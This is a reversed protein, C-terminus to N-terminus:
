DWFNLNLMSTRELIFICITERSGPRDGQGLFARCPAAERRRSPHGLTWNIKDMHPYCICAPHGWFGLPKCRTLPGHQQLDGPTIDTYNSPPGAPLQSLYMMPGYMSPWQEISWVWCLHLSLTFALLILLVQHWTLTFVAPILHLHLQAFGLSLTHNSWSFSAIKKRHQDLHVWPHSWIGGPASSSRVSALLSIGEWGM